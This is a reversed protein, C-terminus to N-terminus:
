DESISSLERAVHDGRGAQERGRDAPRDMAFEYIRRPRATGDGDHHRNEAGKNRNEPDSRRALDFGQLSIGQLWSSPIKKFSCLLSVISSPFNQFCLQYGSFGTEGQL